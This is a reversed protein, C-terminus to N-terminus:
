KRSKEERKKPPKTKNGCTPCLEQRSSMQKQKLRELLRDAVARAAPENRFEKFFINLTEVMSNPQEPEPEPAVTKV